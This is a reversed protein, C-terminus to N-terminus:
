KKKKKPKKLTLSVKTGTAVEKGARPSASVVFGSGKVKGVKLRDARIVAKAKGLPDGTVYPV